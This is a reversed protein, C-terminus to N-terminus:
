LGVKECPVTAISVINNLGYSASQIMAFCLDHQVDKFYTIDKVADSVFDPSSTTTVPNCGGLLAAVTLVAYCKKSVVIGSM